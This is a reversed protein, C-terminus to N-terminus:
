RRLRADEPVATEPAKEAYLEAPRAEVMEHDQVLRLFGGVQVNVVPLDLEPICGVQVPHVDILRQIGEPSIVAVVVQLNGADPRRSPRGHTKAHSAEALICFARVARSRFFDAGSCSPAM